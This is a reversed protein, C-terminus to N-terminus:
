RLTLEGPEPRLEPAPRADRDFPECLAESAAVDRADIGRRHHQAL